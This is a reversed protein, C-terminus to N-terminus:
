YFVTALLVSLPLRIKSRCERYTGYQVSIRAGCRACCPESRRGDSKRFCHGGIRVLQGKVQAFKNPSLMKVIRKAAKGFGTHLGFMMAAATYLRIRDRRTAPNTLNFEKERAEERGTLGATGNQKTSAVDNWGDYFIVIDPRNGRKLQVFLALMKQTSVYGIQGFNSVETCYSSSDLLKQLWSAITYDDRIEYGFM